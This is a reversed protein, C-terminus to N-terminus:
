PTSTTFASVLDSIIDRIAYAGLILVAGIITYTFMRTAKKIEEPNGGATLYSFGAFILFFIIIPVAVIM